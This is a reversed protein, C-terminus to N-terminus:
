CFDFYKLKNQGKRLRYKAFDNENKFQLYINDKLLLSFIQGPPRGYNHGPFVFTEPKLRNKLHELSAWMTHAAQIGSCLGCGEAFLTDGTFLNDGILYCVSGPTHGPTFIPQIVMNGVSWPSEDIGILQQAYFGSTEIEENHMWIPCRYKAALPKALHIHDPHSHTLLIGSLSTQASALAQDIKEMDWAPDIIVSKKNVRDIVLYNYNIMFMYSMKLVVVQPVIVNYEVDLYNENMILDGLKVHINKTM